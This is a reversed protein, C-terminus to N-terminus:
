GHTTMGWKPRRKRGDLGTESVLSPPTINIECMLDVKIEEEKSDKNM